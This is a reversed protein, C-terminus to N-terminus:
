PRTWEGRAAPDVPHTPSGLALIYLLMAENYGRWDSAIWGDEPHWGHSIAPPLPQAWDWEVRGYLTEALARIEQEEPDDHDFYSQCFLVGGLLFTTDITSLEVREFRRGSEPDLFHYFFGRYGITGSPEAGQPAGALFRLTELVRERGAARSIWGREIGIPVATLGFGTAAVSAFSRTPWRDPILGNPHALDWFWRFTREQVDDLLGAETAAPTAAPKVM